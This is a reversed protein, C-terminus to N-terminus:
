KSAILVIRGASSHGRKPPNVLRRGDLLQGGRVADGLRLYLEAALPNGAPSMGDRYPLIPRIPLGEVAIREPRDAFARARGDFLQTEAVHLLRRAQAEFRSEGSLEGLDLLALGALMQDELLGSVAPQGCVHQVAGEADICSSLLFEGAAQAMSRADDSSLQRAAAVCARILAAHRDAYILPDTWWDHAGIELQRGRFTGRDPDFLEAAIYNLQRRAAEIDAFRDRDAKALLLQLLLAQDLGDKERVPTQWDPTHSFAHIGGRQADIMPSTLLAEITREVMRRAREDDRSEAYFLLFELTAIEPFKAGLGFGAYTADFTEVCTQYIREPDISHTPERTAQRAARTVKATIVERKEAYAKWLRLLYLEVNEAPIDVATAFSRGDPLLAVLAPWGGTPYRRAIDPRRFPDVRMGIFRQEVLLRLASSDDAFLGECGPSALYLLLPCDRTRAEEFSSSAWPKWAIERDAPSWTAVSRGPAPPETGEEEQPQERACALLQLLLALLLLRAISTSSGASHEAPTARSRQGCDSAGIRPM